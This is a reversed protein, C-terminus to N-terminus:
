RSLGTSEVAMLVLKSLAHVSRFADDTLMVDPIVVNFESELVVVLEVLTLSDMEALLTSDDLPSTGVVRRICTSVKSYVDEPMLM